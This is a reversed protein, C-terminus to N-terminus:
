MLGLSWFRPMIQTGPVVMNLASQLIYWHEDIMPLDYPREYPDIWYPASTDGIYAKGMTGGRHSNRWMRELISMENIQETTADFNFDAYTLGYGAPPSIEPNTSQIAPWATQDGTANGAKTQNTTLNGTLNVPATTVPPGTLSAGTSGAGNTSFTGIGPNPFVPGDKGALDFIWPYVVPMDWPKTSANKSKFYEIALPQKLDSAKIQESITSNDLGAASPIYINQETTTQNTIPENLTTQNEATQNEATQSSTAATAKGIEKLRNKIWWTDYQEPYLQSWGVLPAPSIAQRLASPYDTSLPVNGYVAEPRYNYNTAFFGTQTASLTQLSDEHISPFALNVPGFPLVNASAGAGLSVGDAAAGVGAVTPGLGIGDAFPPFDLDYHEIDSVNLTQEHFLNQISRSVFLDNGFVTDGARMMYRAETRALAETSSICIAALLFILALFLLFSHRRRGTM